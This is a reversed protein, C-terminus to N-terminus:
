LSCPRPNGEGPLHPTVMRQAQGRAQREGSCFTQKQRKGRERGGEQTRREWKCDQEAKGRKAGAGQPRDYNSFSSPPSGDSGVLVKSPAPVAHQPGPAASTKNDKKKELWPVKWCLCIRCLTLSPCHWFCTTKLPPVHTSFHSHTLTHTVM